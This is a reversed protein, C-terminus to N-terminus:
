PAATCRGDRCVPIPDPAEACSQPACLVAKCTAGFAAQLQDVRARPAVRKDCTPFCCGAESTVPTDPLVTTACDTDASCEAQAPSGADAPQAPEAPAAAPKPAVVRTPGTSASEGCAVTVLLCSLLIPRTVGRLIDRSGPEHLRGAGYGPVV